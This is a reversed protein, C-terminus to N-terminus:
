PAVVRAGALRQRAWGHVPREVFRYILASIALLVALAAVGGIVGGALPVVLLVAFHQFLYVPYSRKSAWTVAAITPVEVTAAFLVAVGALLNFMEYAMLSGSSVVFLAAVLVVLGASLLVVREGLWGRVGASRVAMAILVGLALGDMSYPLFWRAVEAGPCMARVVPAVVVAGVLLRRLGVLPLLLIAAPLVLYFQEEVALSWSMSMLGGITGFMVAVPAAAACLIVFAPGTRAVRRGYFAPVSLSRDLLVGSVLYGSLVFFLNVALYGDHFLWALVTGSPFYGGGGNSFYHYGVVSLAAGARLGDLASNRPGASLSPLSLVAVTM